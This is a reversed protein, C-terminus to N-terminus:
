LASRKEPNKIRDAALRLAEGLRQYHVIERRHLFRIPGTIGPDDTLRLINEYATRARQEGAMDESLDAIVDGASAFCGANFVTGGAARACSQACNGLFGGSFYDTFGGEKIQEATLGDTLQGIMAAIVEFHALEETGMDTLLAAIERCPMTHRQSLYRFAAGLEGSPGGCQAIILKAAAPDPKKIHVPYQLMKKYIWM